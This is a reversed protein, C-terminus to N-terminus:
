IKENRMYVFNNAQKHAFEVAKIIDQGEKICYFIFNACYVDGAGLVNCNQKLENLNIVDVCNGNTIISTKQKTHFVLYKIKYKEVFDFISLGNLLPILEAESIFLYDIYHLNNLLDNEKNFSSLCLDASIVECTKKINKLNINPILDLYSIHAWYSTKLSTNFIEKGVGWNVFSTKEIQKLSSLILASSTQGNYFHLVNDIKNKKLYKKIVKGNDDNGIASEVFLSINKNLLEKIINGIGGISTYVYSFNNSSGIEPWDNIEYVKDLVLNGILKLDYDRTSM